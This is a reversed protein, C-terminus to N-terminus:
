RSTARREFQEYFLLYENLTTLVLISFRVLENTDATVRKNNSPFLFIMWYDNLSKFFDWNEADTVWREKLIRYRNYIRLLLQYFSKISIIKYEILFLYFSFVFYKLHYCIILLSLSSSCSCRRFMLSIPPNGSAVCFLQWSLPVKRKPTNFEHVNACLSIVIGSVPLPSDFFRFRYKLFAAFRLLSWIIM